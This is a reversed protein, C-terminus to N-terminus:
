VYDRLDPPREVHFKHTGCLRDVMDNVFYTKIQECEECYRPENPLNKFQGFLEGGTSLMRRGHMTDYLEALEEADCDASSGKTVYKLVYGAAGKYTNIAKADVIYSDGTAEYWADALPTKGTEQNVDQRGAPIYGSMVVFHAHVHWVRGSETRHPKAEVAMMYGKVGCTSKWFNSRKMKSFSDRLHEYAEKLSRGDVITLTLLRLGIARRHRPLPYKKLVHFLKWRVKSFRKDGCHSCIRYMNCKFPLPKTGCACVETFFDPSGCQLFRAAQTIRDRDVLCSFVQNRFEEIEDHESVEPISQEISHTYSSDFSKTELRLM